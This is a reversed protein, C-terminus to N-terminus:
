LSSALQASAFNAKFALLDSARSEPRARQETALAPEWSGHADVVVRAELVAARTPDTALDVVCAHWGDRRAVDVVTGPQWIEVGLAAARSLLLTDLRERGLARGWPSTAGRLKPLEARLAEGGAYLAVRELPPGASSALEDGIGLSELM